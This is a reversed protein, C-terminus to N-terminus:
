PSGRQSDNIAISVAYDGDAGFWFSRQHDDRSQLTVPQQLPSLRLLNARAEKTNTTEADDEIVQCALATMPWSLVPVTRNIQSLVENGM